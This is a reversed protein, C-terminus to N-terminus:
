LAERKDLTSQILEGAEDRKTTVTANLIAYTFCSGQLLLLEPFSTSFTNWLAVKSLKLQRGLSAATRLLGDSWIYPEQREPVPPFRGWLHESSPTHRPLNPAARHGSVELAYDARMKASTQHRLNHVEYVLATCKQQQIHEVLGASCDVCAQAECVEYGPCVPRRALRMALAIDNEFSAQRDDSGSALLSGEENWALRNVCGMHGRLVDQVCLQPILSAPFQLKRQVAQLHACM